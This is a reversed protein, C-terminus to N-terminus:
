RALGDRLIYKSVRSAPLDRTSYYRHCVLFDSPLMSGEVEAAVVVGNQTYKDDCTTPEGGPHYM